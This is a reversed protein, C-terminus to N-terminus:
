PNFIRYEPMPLWAKRLKLTQEQQNADLFKVRVPGFTGQIIRTCDEATRGATVIGNIETVVCGVALGGRSAPSDPLVRTVGMGQAGAFREFGVGIGFLLRKLPPEGATPGATVPAPLTPIAPQRPVRAALPVVLVLLVLVTPIFRRHPAARVVAPPMQQTEADRRQFNVPDNM